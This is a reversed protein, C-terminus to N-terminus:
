RNTIPQETRRFIPGKKLKKQKHKVKLPSVEQIAFVKTGNLEQYFNVHSDLKLQLSPSIENFAFEGQIMWVNDNTM